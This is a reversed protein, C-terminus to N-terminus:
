TVQVIPTVNADHKWNAAPADPESRVCNRGSRKAAYLAADARQLMSSVTDGGPSSTAVGISATISRRDAFWRGTDLSMIGKRFSEAMEVAPDQVIGPLVVLFEEGGLRGFFAPELVGSRVRDAVVKLV